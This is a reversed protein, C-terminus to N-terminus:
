INNEPQLRGSEFRNIEHHVKIDIIAEISKESLNHKESLSFIAEKRGMTESLLAYEYIIDLNRSKEITSLGMEVHADVTRKAIGYFHSLFKLQYKNM